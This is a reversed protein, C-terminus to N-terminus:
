AVSTVGLAAIALFGFQEDSELSTGVEKLVHLLEVLDFFQVLLSGALQLLFGLVM